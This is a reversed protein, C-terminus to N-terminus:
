SGLPGGSQPHSAPKDCSRPAIGETGLSESPSRPCPLPLPWSSISMSLTDIKCWEESLLTVRYTHTCTITCRETHLVTHCWETYHDVQPTDRQTIFNVDNKTMIHMLILIYQPTYEESRWVTPGVIEYSFDIARWMVPWAPMCYLIIIYSYNYVAM